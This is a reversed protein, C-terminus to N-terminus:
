AHTEPEQGDSLAEVGKLTIAIRGNEWHIFQRDELSKLSVEALGSEFLLLLRIEDLTCPTGQSLLWQLIRREAKALM